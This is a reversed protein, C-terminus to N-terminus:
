RVEPLHRRLHEITASVSTVIEGSTAAIGMATLRAAFEARTSMSNNTAYRVVIAPTSGLWSSPAGEM